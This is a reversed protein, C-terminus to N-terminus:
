PLPMTDLALSRGSLWRRPALPGQIGQPGAPGTPGTPGPPGQIGQPRASGPPGRPGRPGPPGMAGPGARNWQIAKETGKNCTEKDSDILRLSGDKTRYCAHFVGEKDPIDGWAFSAIASLTIAGALRALFSRHVLAM